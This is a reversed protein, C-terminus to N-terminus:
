AACRANSFLFYEYLNFYHSINLTCYLVDGLRLELEIANAESSIVSRDFSKVRGQSIHDSYASLWTDPHFSSQPRLDGLSVMAALRKAKKLDAETFKPIKSSLSLTPQLPKIKLAEKLEKEVIPLQIVNYDNIHKAFIHDKMCTTNGGAISCTYETGEKIGDNGALCLLCRARDANGVDEFHKWWPSTKKGM